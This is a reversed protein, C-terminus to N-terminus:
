REASLQKLEDWNDILTKLRAAVEDTGITSESM